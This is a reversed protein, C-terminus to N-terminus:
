PEHRHSRGELRRLLMNRELSGARATRPWLPRATRTNSRARARRRKPRRRPAPKWPRGAATTHVQGAPILLKNAEELYQANRGAHTTNSRSFGRRLRQVEVINRFDRLKEAHANRRLDLGGPGVHGPRQGAGPEGEHLANLYEGNPAWAAEFDAQPLPRRRGVRKGPCPKMGEMAYLADGVRIVSHRKSGAGTM